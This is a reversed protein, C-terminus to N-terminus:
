ASTEPENPGFRPFDDVDELVKEVHVSHGKSRLCESIEHLYRDADDRGRYYVLSHVWGADDKAIGGLQGPGGVE